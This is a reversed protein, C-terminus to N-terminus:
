ALFSLYYILIVSMMLLIGMKMRAYLALSSPQYQSVAIWPLHRIFDLKLTSATFLAILWLSCLHEVISAWAYNLALEDAGKIQAKLAQWAQPIFFAGFVV